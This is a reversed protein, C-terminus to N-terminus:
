PFEEWPLNGATEDQRRRRWEEELKALRQELRPQSRKDLDQLVRLVLKNIRDQRDVIARIWWQILWMVGRRATTIAPGVVNKRSRPDYAVDGEVYTSLAALADALDDSLLAPGGPLPTKLLADVEDSYVGLARKKRVRERVEHMLADVDVYGTTM